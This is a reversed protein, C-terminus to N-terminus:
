VVLVRRITGDAFAVVIECDNVRKISGECEDALMCRLLDAFVSQDM